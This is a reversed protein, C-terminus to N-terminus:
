DAIVRTKWEWCETSAWTQQAEMPMRRTWQSPNRRSQATRHNKSEWAASDPSILLKALTQIEDCRHMTYEKSREGNAHGQWLSSSRHESGTLTPGLVTGWVWLNCSLFGSVADRKNVKRALWLCAGRGLSPCGEKKKEWALARLAAIHWDAMAIKAQCFPYASADHKYKPPLYIEKTSLIQHQTSVGLSRWYSWHAKSSLKWKM